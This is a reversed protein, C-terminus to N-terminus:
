GNKRRCAPDSPIVTVSSNDNQSVYIGDGQVCARQVEGYHYVSEIRVWQPIINTKPAPANYDHAETFNGCGVVALALVVAACTM